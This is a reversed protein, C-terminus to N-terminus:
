VNWVLLKSQFTNLLMTRRSLADAVRNSKGSRHKLVFSYGQLFDVWKSHKKNLKGQSNIYQLAKHDTLLLFDKPLM